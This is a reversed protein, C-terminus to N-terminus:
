ASAFVSTTSAIKDLDEHCRSHRRHKDGARSAPNPANDDVSQEFRARRHAGQRTAGLRGCPQRRVDFDDGAVEGDGLRKVWRQLTNAGDEEDPGSV